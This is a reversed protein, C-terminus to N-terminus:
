ALEPSQQAGDGAPNAVIHELSKAPYMQCDMMDGRHEVRPRRSTRTPASEPAHRASGNGRRHRISSRWDARAVRVSRGRMAEATGPRNVGTACCKLRRDCGTNRTLGQTRAGGSM